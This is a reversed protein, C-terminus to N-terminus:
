FYMGVNLDQHHFQYLIPLIKTKKDMSCKPKVQRQEFKIKLNKANISSKQWLM